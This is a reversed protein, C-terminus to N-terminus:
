HQYWRLFNFVLSYSSINKFLNFCSITMKQDTEDKCWYGMACGDTRSESGSWLVRNGRKDRKNLIIQARGFQIRTMSESRCTNHGLKTLDDVTQQPLGDEVHVCPRITNTDSNNDEKKKPQPYIINFRPVEIALQPHMGHDILNVMLQIFSSSNFSSYALFYIVEFLCWSLNDFGQITVFGNWLTLVEAGSFELQTREIVQVDKSSGERLKRLGRSICGKEYSNLCMNKSLSYKM